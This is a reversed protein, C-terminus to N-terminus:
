AAALMEEKVEEFRNNDAKKLEWAQQSLQIRAVKAGTAVERFLKNFASPNDTMSFNHMFEVLLTSMKGSLAASTDLGKSRARPRAVKNMYLDAGLITISNDLPLRDKKLLGVEIIFAAIKDVTQDFKGGREKAEKSQDFDKRAAWGDIIDTSALVAHVKRALKPKDAILLGAILIAGPIRVTTSANAIKRGNEGMFNDFQEGYKSDVSYLIEKIQKIGFSESLGPPIADLVEQPLVVDPQGVGIIRSKSWLLEPVQELGQPRNMNFESEKQSAYQRLTAAPESPPPAPFGDFEKNPRTVMRIGAEVPRRGIRDGPLDEWGLRDVWVSYMGARNAALVDATVKDGVMVAQNTDIGFHSAAKLLMKSGPKRESRDLPTFVVVNEGLQEAWHNLRVFDKETNPRKNSVIAINDFDQSKIRKVIKPDIDWGNHEVFSGEGDLLLTNVGREKFGSFNIENIHSVKLTPRYWDVFGLRREGKGLRENM